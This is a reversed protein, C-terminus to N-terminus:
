KSRRISVNGTKAIYKRIHELDRNNDFDWEDLGLEICLKLDHAEKDNLALYRIYDTTAM